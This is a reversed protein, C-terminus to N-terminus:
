FWELQAQGAEGSRSEGGGECAPVERLTLDALAGRVLHELDDCHFLHAIRGPAERTSVGAGTALRVIEACRGADQREYLSLLPKEYSDVFSQIRGKDAKYHKGAHYLAALLLHVKWALKGIARSEKYSGAVRKLVAQLELLEFEQPTSAVVLYQHQKAYHEQVKVFLASKGAGRRGVVFNFDHSETLARFEATAVFAEALMKKDAEARVSGLINGVLAVQKLRTSPDASDQM